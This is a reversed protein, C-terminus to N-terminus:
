DDDEADDDDIETLPLSVCRFGSAPYREDPDFTNRYVCKSHVMYNLWSGGRAVRQIVHGKSYLQVCWEWVNGAMDFCGFPSVGQEFENVASTRGIVFDCTNAYDNQYGMAEGWPYDRGDVGRAAKEWEKEIPLRRGLWLACVLSEYYNIGIVPHDDSFSYLPFRLIHNPDFEKYLANTVPFKMVSFEKLFIHDEEDKEDQYIFKGAPITVMEGWNKVISLTVVDPNSVEGLFGELEKIEKLSDFEQRDVLDSWDVKKIRLLLEIVSYLIRGDRNERKLLRKLLTLLTSSENAAVVDEVKILRCRSFQPFSERCQYKLLQAILLRREESLEKAECVSNGALFLAGESMFIDFVENALVMGSFFKLMEEWHENRCKLTVINKWDKNKSLRRAAFYEQFSPHRFQWRSPTQQLINELEPPIIGDLILKDCGDKKLREKPYGTEIDDIRQSLGDEFLQLAVEELREFVIESDKIKNEYFDSELLHRFYASYIEGRTTHGELKDLDSLVRIMKLILPVEILEPSYKGLSAIAKNKQAEGLFVNRKKEDIKEFAVHFASDKGRQIISDTALHGFSFKRTALILRNSRFIKDEVFTELYFQFRDEAPLQDLADLLFMIRGERELYKITKLLCEKDLVLDSDEECEILIVDLMEQHVSEMFRTVGEGEQLNGLNFYVPLPYVPHPVHQLLQEQYYKLFTTKGMGCDAELMVKMHDTVLLDENIIRPAPFVQEQISQRHRITNTDLLIPVVYSKARLGEGLVNDLWSSTQVQQHKRYTNIVWERSEELKSSVLASEDENPLPVPLENKENMKFPERYNYQHTIKDCYCGKVPGRGKIIGRLSSFGVLFKGRIVIIKITELM